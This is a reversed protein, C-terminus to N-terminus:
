LELHKYPIKPAWFDIPITSFVFIMDNKDDFITKLKAKARSTNSINLTLTAANKRVEKGQSSM